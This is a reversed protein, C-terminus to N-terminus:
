GSCTARSRIEEEAGCAPRLQRRLRSKVRAEGEDDMMFNAYAGPLNFPHVAEWYDQAWQKLAAGQGSRSRGRLIVMSWTADRYGWATADKQKGISPATSQISTCEPFRARCSPPTRSIRTLPPTRCNRSSTARGIGNCARRTSRTSCRRCCRTPCRSRGTSSRSRCHRASRMSPRRARPLPRQTLRPARVDEQGLTGRFRISPLFRSCGSFYTSNTQRM